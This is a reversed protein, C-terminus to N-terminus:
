PTPTPTTSCLRGQYRGAVVVRDDRQRVASKEACEDSVRVQVDIGTAVQLQDGVGSAEDRDDLREQLGRGM